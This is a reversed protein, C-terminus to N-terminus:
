SHIYKTLRRDKLQIAWDRGKTDKNYNYLIVTSHTRPMFAIGLKICFSARACVFLHIRQKTNSLEGMIHILQKILLDQTYKNDANDIGRGLDPEIFITKDRLYEPISEKIISFTNCIAIGVDEDNDRMVNSIKDELTVVDNILIYQADEGLLPLTYWRANDRDYDLITINSAYGSGFLTGCVFLHPFSGLGALYTNEVSKNMTRNKINDESVDYAKIVEDPNYTDIKKEYPILNIRDRSPIFGRKMIDETNFNNDSVYFLYNSKSIELMFKKYIIFLAPIIVIVSLVYDFASSASDYLLSKSGDTVFITQGCALGLGGLLMITAIKIYTDTKFKEFYYMIINIFEHSKM